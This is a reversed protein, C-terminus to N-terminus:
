FDLAPCSPQGWQSATPTWNSSGLLFPRAGGFNKPCGANERTGFSSHGLFRQLTPPRITAQSTNACIYSIHIYIIYIMHIYIYIHIHIYIYIYTYMTGHIHMYIYVYVTRKPLYEKHRQKYRVGLPLPCPGSEWPLAPEPAVRRAAQM